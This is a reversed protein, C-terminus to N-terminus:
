RIAAISVNSLVTPGHPFKCYKGYRDDSFPYPEQKSDDFGTSVHRRYIALMERDDCM